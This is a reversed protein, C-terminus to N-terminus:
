PQRVFPLDWLRSDGVHLTTLRGRPDRAFRIAGVSAEFHDRYTPSLPTESGSRTSLFLQGNRSLVRLSNGVDDSRYTGTYATLETPTPAWGPLARWTLVTSDGDSTVGRFTRVGQADLVARVRQGSVLYSGDRLARVPSGNARLVGDASDVRTISRWRRDEYVGRWALLAAQDARVTDPATLPPLEPHLADILQHTYSTANAGAANCLVAISLDGLAPFRALYTSYGATSGSHAIQPTGRYSNVFLGLAYGIELGNTLRMRRTLSDTIAAGLTKNTLARNWILWDGVTTWLGGAGVVNDLPMDLKWDTGARRYAQALGPVVRTFDDRWSTHTMGLPAFIRERTFQQFSMGSVREVIAHALLFGSNTYSYHDGVPYNLARQAAILRVVDPNTHLRSGRPWGQLEVLNSWERLGTTHTLLHRVTIPRDYTPLEPLYRRADDDLALKGDLALLLVATATFQKAVSGSELITQPTIPRGGAIDAMGYGRELLTTSGRAIGVACGPGHTGNWADFVKDAIAVLNPTAPAAPRTQAVVPAPCLPLAAVVLAAAIPLPRM